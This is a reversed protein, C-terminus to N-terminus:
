PILHVRGFSFPHLIRNQISQDLNCISLEQISFTVAIKGKKERSGMDCKKSSDHSKEIDLTQFASAGLLISTFNCKSDIPDLNCISLEQIAFTVAMKGNKPTSGMKLHIGCKKPPIM